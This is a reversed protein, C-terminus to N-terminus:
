GNATNGKRRGLMLPILFGLVGAGFVIARGMIKSDTTGVNHVFPSFYDQHDHIRVGLTMLFGGAVFSSLLSCLVAGIGVALFRAM